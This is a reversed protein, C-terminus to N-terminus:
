SERGGFLAMLGILSAAGGVGFVMDIAIRTNSIVSDQAEKWVGEVPCANVIASTIEPFLYTVATQFLEGMLLGIIFGILWIILIPTGSSSM